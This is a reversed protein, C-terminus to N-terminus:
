PRQVIRSKTAESIIVFASKMWNFLPSTQFFKFLVLHSSFYIIGGFFIALVFRLISPELIQKFAQVGAIMFMLSLITPYNIKLLDKFKIDFYLNLFYTMLIASVINTLILTYGIGIIGFTKIFWWISSLLVIIRAIEQFVLINPKGYGYFAGMNCAAIGRTFGVFAFVFLLDSIDSWKKGIIFHGFDYSVLTIGITIPALVSFILSYSQFIANRYRPVDNQIMSYSPFLVRGFINKAENVPLNVINSAMKYLGLTSVGFIKSVFYKDGETAIYSAIGGVLVWKGFVFTERFSSLSFKLKPFSPFYIYSIILRAIGFTLYGFVLAWANKLIIAAGIAVSLSPLLISIELIFLKLFELNKEFLFLKFHCLSMLLPSIGIVRIIPISDSMNFFNAFLPALVYIAISTIIGKGIEVTWATDIHEQSIKQKQILSKKLGFETLIQLLSIILLGVVVMGYDEPLIYRTLILASIFGSSRSIIRLCGLWISGKIVKQKLKINSKSM